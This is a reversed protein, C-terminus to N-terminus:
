LEVIDWDFGYFHLYTIVFFLKNKWLKQSQLFKTIVRTSFSRCPPIRIFIINNTTFTTGSTKKSSKSKKSKASLVGEKDIEVVNLRELSNKINSTCGTHIFTYKKKNNIRKTVVVVYLFLWKNNVNWQDIDRWLTEATISLIVNPFSRVEAFLKRVYLSVLSDSCSSVLNM